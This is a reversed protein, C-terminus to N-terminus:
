LGITSDPEEPSEDDATWVVSEGVSPEPEDADLPAEPRSPARGEGDPDHPLADSQRRGEPIPETPTPWPWKRSQAGPIAIRQGLCESWSGAQHTAVIELTPRLRGLLRATLSSVPGEAEIRKPPQKPEAKKMLTRVSAIMATLADGHLALPEWGEPGDPLLLHLLQAYFDPVSLGLPVLLSADIPPLACVNPSDGHDVLRLVETEALPELRGYKGWPVMEPEIEPYPRALGEDRLEIFTKGFAAAELEEIPVTNAPAPNAQGDTMPIPEALYARSAGKQLHEIFFAATAERMRRNFDRPGLFRDVRVLSQQNKGRYSGRLKKATIEVRDPADEDAAFFLVPMPARHALLNAWDGIDAIGSLTKFAGDLGAEQSHGAGGAALASFRSDAAAALIAADGGVGVGVLGVREGLTGFEAIAMDAARILDWVYVGASPAAMWLSSDYPDGMSARDGWGPPDIAVVVFGHMAMAIGFAQVWPARRGGDWTDAALVVLPCPGGAVPRYTLAPLPLGPHSEFTVQERVWGAGDVSQGRKVRLDTRPPMPELGLTRRIVSVDAPYPKARMRDRLCADILRHLAAVDLPM